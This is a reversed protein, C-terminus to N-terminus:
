ETENTDKGQPRGIEPSSYPLVPAEEIGYEKYKEKELKKRELETELDLGVMELRTSRSLSGEAYISAGITNLDLLKYLKMPEFTPIPVNKFSNKEGIEKYLEKVWEILKDRIGEMTAIPSFTAVDSGGEVNSRITEGTILTRPFGLGAIIDDDVSRYKEQNLMAETNPHIWEIALTHNAFLQFIRENEGTTTRYNMQSKINTFDNEDTCPFEDSGLKITQIASTVRAAISYDMKRLNRKHMLSEMANTMYPIPYIDEPLCRGLIPRVDELKIKFSTGKVNKVAKVFEPYSQLMLKYTEVDTTGDKMKGNNKIFYALDADIEVFYYKKNPIPSNKITITHPDRFWINDPVWLRRRSDLHPDLDKGAKRAWEYEPVVLGSLLYELCVNRFFEQLMDAISNISFFEVDSCEYRNNKLPSIACDVMKNIVTGSVPDHKYFFRCLKIMPVFKKPIEMKDVRQTSYVNGVENSMDLVNVTSVALKPQEVVATAIEGLKKSEKDKM